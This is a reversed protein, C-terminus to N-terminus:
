ALGTVPASVHVPKLIGGKTLSVGQMENVELEGPIEIHLADDGMRIPPMDQLTFQGHLTLNVPSPMMDAALWLSFSDNFDAKDWHPRDLRADIIEGNYLSDHRISGQRGQWTSDSAVQIQEGNGLTINM